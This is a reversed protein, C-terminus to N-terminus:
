FATERVDLYTRVKDGAYNLSLVTLFMVLIPFMAVHTGNTLAGVGSGELIQKGWTTGDAISLGLFALSGEAVIAIAMGLLALACMPIAVNPLLERILIRTDKAGLVRAAQVFEREAFVITNARALRGVPAIALVGITLAVVQLSRELSNVILLALLLSPFSLLCLFAFSIIRDPWGRFYGAIMGLPGGILLGAVIAIFGVTLSVRAGWIVRAFVDRGNADFGFWGDRGPGQFRGGRANDNFGDIPLIPALVAVGVVLGLWAISVWFGFGLSKKLADDHTEDIAAIAAEDLTAPRAGESIDDDDPM